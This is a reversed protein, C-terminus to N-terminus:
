CRNWKEANSFIWFTETVEQPIKVIEQEKKVNVILGESCLHGKVTMVQANLPFPTLPPIQPYYSVETM